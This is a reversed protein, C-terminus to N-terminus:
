QLMTYFRARPSGVTDDVAILRPRMSAQRKLLQRGMRCGTM